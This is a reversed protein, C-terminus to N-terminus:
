RVQGDKVASCDRPAYRKDVKPQLQAVFRKAGPSANPPAIVKFIDAWFAKDMERTENGAACLNAQYEQATDAKDNADDSQAQAVMAIGAGSLALVGAVGAAIAINRTRRAFAGTAQFAGSLLGMAGELRRMQEVVTTPDEAVHESPPDESIHEPM